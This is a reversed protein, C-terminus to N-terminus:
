GQKCGRKRRLRDHGSRSGHFGGIISGIEKEYQEQGGKKHWDGEKGHRRERKRLSKRMMWNAISWKVM